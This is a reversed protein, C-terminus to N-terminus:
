STTFILHFLVSNQKYTLVFYPLINPFHKFFNALKPPTERKILSFPQRDFSTVCLIDGPKNTIDALLIDCIIVLSIALYETVLYALFNAM